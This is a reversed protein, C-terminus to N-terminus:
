NRRQKQGARVARTQARRLSRAEERKLPDYRDRQWAMERAFKHAQALRENAVAGSEIAVLVACGPEGAHQCDRFRCSAALRDIEPFGTGAEDSDAACLSFERMGPTDILLARSPLVFLSRGTTTHVGRTDSRVAGVSQRELGLLRNTLSSKGVGSSGVFVATSGPLLESELESHGRAQEASVLVVPVTRLEARLQEALELARSSLDAKNLAVIARAPASRIARLYREIRRVNVGHLQVRRAADDATLACVVIALDVNAAIPQPEPSGGPTKRQLLSSREFVHVIRSVADSAGRDLLVFDGVCVRTVAPELRGALVARVSKDGSSVLFQGRGQAIVRAPVANSWDANVAILSRLQTQFIANFGLRELSEFRPYEM